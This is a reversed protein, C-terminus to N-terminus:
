EGSAQPLAVVEAPTRPELAQGVVDAARRQGEPQASAYVDLTMSPKAHGLNASVSRVDAGSEIALSAYTHRLTHFTCREGRVCVLGLANSLSAWEKCLVTPNKYSGDEGGIVYVTAFERDTASMGLALRSAVWAPHQATRRRELANVLAPTIPIDRISAGNKPEKIYTAGGQDNNTGHGVGISCRVHIMRSKLDVDRWTLACIEGERMGTHLAIYAATVLPTPQMTDLAAILRHAEDTGLRPPNKGSARKPPKVPACPNRDLDGIEVAHECVSKLLTHYKNVTGSSLGDSVLGAEWAQIAGPKLDRLAVGRFAATIKKLANRYGRVTSAEIAGASEKDAIYRDVYEPVTLSADPTAHEAEMQSRWAELAQAAQSKTRVDPGFTTSVQRQAGGEDYYNLIGRYVYGGKNKAKRTFGGVYYAM